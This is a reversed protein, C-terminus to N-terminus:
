SLASGIWPGSNSEADGVVRQSKSTRLVTNFLDGLKQTLSPMEESDRKTQAISPRIGKQYAAVRRAAVTSGSHFRITTPNVMEATYLNRHWAPFDVCFMSYEWAVQFASAAEEGLKPSWYYTSPARVTSKAHERAFKYM